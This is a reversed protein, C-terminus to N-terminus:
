HGPPPDNYVRHLLIRRAETQAVLRAVERVEFPQERVYRARGARLEAVASPVQDPTLRRGFDAPAERGRLRALILDGTESRFHSSEWYWRMERRDGAPPVPEMTVSNYGGFDYLPAGAEASVRAMDALWAEYIDGLGVDYIAELQRAHIPSIYLLTEVHAARLAALLGQLASVRDPAYRYAGYNDADILFNEGLTRDFRVRPAARPPDITWDAFGDDGLITRQGLITAGITDITHSLTDFSVVYNLAIELPLQGAARTTKWEAALARRSTFSVFDLGIVARRLEPNRALAFRGIAAIELMNAAPLCANYVRIGDWGVHAPDIGRLCRSTGLVVGQWHGRALHETKNLRGGGELGAVREFSGHSPWWLAKPDVIANLAAVAITGATAIALTIRVFRAANEM